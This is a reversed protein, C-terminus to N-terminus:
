ARSTAGIREAGAVVAAQAAEPADEADAAAYPHYHFVRCLSITDGGECLAEFEAVDRGLALALARTLRDSADVFSNFVFCMSDRWARASESPNGGHSHLVDPWSNPGQLPNHGSPPANKPWEYGFSFAEKVELADSGSESGMGIYGRTFGPSPDFSSLVVSQKAPM